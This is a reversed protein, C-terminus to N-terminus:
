LPCPVFLFYVRSQFIDPGYNKDMHVSVPFLIRRQFQALRESETTVGLQIAAVMRRSLPDVTVM